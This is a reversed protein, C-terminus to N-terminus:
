IVLVGKGDPGTLVEGREKSGSVLDRKAVVQAALIALQSAAMNVAPVEAVEVPEGPVDLTELLKLTQEVRPTLDSILLLDDGLAGVSGGPKSLALKLTETLEKATRNKLRYSVSSFGSQPGAGLGDSPEIRALAAAADLKVVSIVGDRGAPRVTTFG